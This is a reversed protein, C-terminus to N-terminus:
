RDRSALPPPLAKCPPGVQMANLQAPDCFSMPDVRYFSATAGVIRADAATGDLREALPGPPGLCSLFYTVLPLTASPAHKEAM